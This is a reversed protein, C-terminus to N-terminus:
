MERDAEASQRKKKEDQERKWEEFTKQLSQIARIITRQGYTEAGRQSDWKDKHLADKRAYWVSHRFITDIQSPNQTFFAIRKALAFDWKSEDITGDNRTFEAKSRGSLCEPRYDFLASAEENRQLRRIIAKDEEKAEADIARRDLRPRKRLFRDCLANIEEQRELLRTRGGYVKGTMCAFRKEGYVELGIADNRNGTGEPLFGECFIHIGTGSCSYEAYSDPVLELIELAEESVQGTEKDVCHDLDIFVIGRPVVFALGQSDDRLASYHASSFPYWDRPNANSANRGKFPITMQKRMHGNADNGLMRYTVWARLEKLEPPIASENFDDKNM